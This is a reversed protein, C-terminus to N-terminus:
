QNYKIDHKDMMEQLYRVSGIVAMNGEQGSSIGVLYGNKDIVPSGSRGMFQTEESLTKMFYYSGFNKFCQHKILSPSETQQDKSWGIEYVIENPAVPSFRLKLPYIDSINEEVDLILWDRVKLTNFQGIAEQKNENILGKINIKKTPENKSYMDWSVFGPSLSINEAGAYWEFVIFLHKCTIGLTDMGTDILFANGLNNFSTDTFTVHNKLTIEPWEAMPLTTWVEKPLTNKNNCGFFFFTFLLILPLTTKISKYM